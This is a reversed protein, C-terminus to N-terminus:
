KWKQKFRNWIKNYKEKMVFALWLKEYTNYEDAFGNKESDLNSTYSEFGNVLRCIDKSILEQLQDQRPLWINEGKETGFTNVDGNNINNVDIYFLFGENYYDGNSFSYKKLNQIEYAKECMDIYEKSTDM